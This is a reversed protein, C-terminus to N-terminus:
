NRINRNEHLQSSNILILIVTTFFYIGNVRGFISESFMVVMMFLSFQILLKDKNRLGLAFSYLPIAILVFFGLFGTRWFTDIYQNHPNLDVHNKLGLNSLRKKLIKDTDNTVGKGIFFDAKKMTTLAERWLLLRLTLGNIRADNPNNIYKEKLITLDELKLIENFRNKLPSFLLVIIVLPFILFLVKRNKIFNIAVVILSFLFVMKSGSFILFLFLIFELIYKQKGIYNLNIYCISFFLLYSYYVPHLYKTFYDFSLFEFNKFVYVDFISTSLLCFGIIFASIPFLSLFKRNSKRPLIIALVLFPLFREITSLENFSEKSIFINNLFYIIFFALVLLNTKQSKISVWSISNLNLIAILILTINYIPAPLFISMVFLAMSINKISYVTFQIPKLSRIVLVILLSLILLPIILEYIRKFDSSYLYTNPLEIFSHKGNVEIEYKNKSSYIKLNQVVNIDKLSIDVTQTQTKLKISYIALDKAPSDFYLRVNRIKVENSFTTNYLSDNIKTFFYPTNFDIKESKQNIVYTIPVKNNPLNGNLLIEVSHLKSDLISYSKYFYVSLGVIVLLTVIILQSLFNKKIKM